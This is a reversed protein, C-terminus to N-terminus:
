TRMHKVVCLKLFAQVSSIPYPSHTGLAPNIEPLSMQGGGVGGGVGLFKTQGGYLVTDDNTAIGSYM